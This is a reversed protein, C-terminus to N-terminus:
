ETEETEEKNLQSIFSYGEVKEALYHGMEELLDIMTMCFSHGMRPFMKSYGQYDYKELIDTLIYHGLNLYFNDM